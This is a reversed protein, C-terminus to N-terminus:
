WIIKMLVENSPMKQKSQILQKQLDDNKVILEMNERRISDLAARSELEISKGFELAENKQQVLEECVSNILSRTTSTELMLKNGLEGNKMTQELNKKLFRFSCFFFFLRFINKEVFHFYHFNLLFKFVM